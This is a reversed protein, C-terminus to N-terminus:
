SGEGLQGLTAHNEGIGETQSSKDWTDPHDLLWSVNVEEHLLDPHSDMISKVQKSLPNLNSKDIHMETFGYAIDHDRM